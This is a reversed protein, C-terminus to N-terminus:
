ERRRRTTHDLDDLLREAFMRLQDGTPYHEVMTGAQARLEQPVAHDKSLKRLFDGAQLMSQLRRDAQRALFHQNQRHVLYMVTGALLGTGVVIVLALLLVQPISSM